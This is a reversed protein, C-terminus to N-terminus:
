WVMVEQAMRKAATECHREDQEILICKRGTDKAARGTTGSGGFPDVITEGPETMNEVLWVMLGLPKQCPHLANDGNYAEFEWKPLQLPRSSVIPEVPAGFPAPNTKRYKLVCPTSLKLCMEWVGQIPCFAAIPVDVMDMWQLDFVDWPETEKRRAFDGAKKGGGRIWGTGYPQDTIVASYGSLSPLVQRYDGHYITVSDDKYFSIFSPVVLADLRCPIAESNKIM